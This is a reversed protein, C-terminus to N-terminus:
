ESGASGLGGGEAQELGLELGGHWGNGERM